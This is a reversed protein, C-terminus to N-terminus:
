DVMQRAKQIASTATEELSLLLFWRSGLLHPCFSSVFDIGRGHKVSINEGGVVVVVRSCGSKGWSIHCVNERERERERAVNEQGVAFIAWLSFIFYFCCCCCCTVHPLLSFSEATCLGLAFLKFHKSGQISPISSFSFSSTKRNAESRVKSHV